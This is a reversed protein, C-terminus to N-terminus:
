RTAGQEIPHGARVWAQTGGTLSWARAGAADLVQAAMASRGGSACVAVVDQGAFRRAAGPLEDLPLNVAGPLHGAAFEAPSRVDLVVAGERRRLEDLDIERVTM